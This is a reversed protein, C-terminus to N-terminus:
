GTPPTSYSAPLVHHEEVVVVPAGASPQEIRTAVNAYASGAAAAWRFGPGSGQSPAKPVIWTLMGCAALVTASVAVCCLRCSKVMALACCKFDCQRWNVDPFFLLRAPSPPQRSADASLRTGAASRFGHCRCPTCWAASLM